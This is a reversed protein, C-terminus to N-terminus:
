SIVVANLKVQLKYYVKIQIRFNYKLKQNIIQTYVDM